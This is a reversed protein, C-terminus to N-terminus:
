GVKYKPTNECAVTMISSKGKDSILIWSYGSYESGHEQSEARRKFQSAKTYTETTPLYAKGADTTVVQYLRM